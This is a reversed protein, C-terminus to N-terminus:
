LLNARIHNLRQADRFAIAQFKTEYYTVTPEGNDKDWSEVAFGNRKLESQAIEEDTPMAVPPKVMSERLELLAQDDEATSTPKAIIAQFMASRTFSQGSNSTFPSSQAALSQAFSQGGVHPPIKMTAKSTLYSALQEYLFTLLAVVGTVIAATHDGVGHAILWTSIFGSLAAIWKMILRSAWTTKIISAGVRVAMPADKGYPIPEHTEPDRARPVRANRSHELIRTILSM